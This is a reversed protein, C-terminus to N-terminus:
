AHIEVRLRKVVLQAVAASDTSKIGVMIAPDTVLTMSPQFSTATSQRMIGRMRQAGVAPWGGSYVGSTMRAREDLLADVEIVLVDDTFNTTDNVNVVNTAAANSGFQITNTSGSRIGKIFYFNQNFANPLGYSFTAGEFSSTATVAIQVWIRVGWAPDLTVGTLLNTLTIYIKTLSDTPVTWDTNTSNCKM